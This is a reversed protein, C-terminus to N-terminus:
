HSKLIKEVPQEHNIDNYSHYNNILEKLSCKTGFSLDYELVNGDETIIENWVHGDNGYNGEVIYCPLKIQKNNTVIKLLKSRGECIGKGRQYVAYATGGKITSELTWHGNNTISMDYPYNDQIVKYFFDMKKKNSWKDININRKESESLIYKLFEDRIRREEIIRNKNNEDLLKNVAQNFIVDNCNMLYDNFGSGYIVSDFFMIKTNKSLINFPLCANYDIMCKNVYLTINNDSIQSIQQMLMDLCVSEGEYFLSVDSNKKYNILQYENNSLIRNKLKIKIRNGDIPLPPAILNKM